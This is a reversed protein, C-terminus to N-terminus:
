EVPTSLSPSFAGFSFVGASLITTFVFLGAWSTAVRALFFWQVNRWGGVLGVGSVAGVICQTSSVPIGLFSATVVTLSAALEASAGRSPSLMTLKYGISKMVKYGYLLLGFVIAIGGYALVWKQVTANKDVIGSQYINLIASLPAITNSVDNAGHAFSNLCATFVQVYTFLSEANPDFQEGAEWLAAAKPDEHMSQSRLDQRYTADAVKNGLNHLSSNRRKPAEGNAKDDVVEPFEEPVDVSVDESDPDEVEKAVTVGREIDAKSSTAVKTGTQSHHHVKIPGLETHYEIDDGEEDSDVKEFSSQKKIIEDSLEASDLDDGEVHETNCVNPTGHPRWGSEIKRKACPGVIFIWILGCVAGTGFSTPLVWALSLKEEFNKFNATAKYFVYFLDIGIGVFLVIPFTYYARKFPDSTRMVFVTILGFIIFAIFGSLLPSALWSIFIKIAVDWQISDFGKAAISFGMISAVIDHTTSVPMGFHTAIYLMIVASLLSTFMGFMLVEPEDAYLSVDVIKSRITSTVSAGLFFAGSFEFISAIIVAQKLTISGSSVSSAFANAVDNAGILFGYAFGCIGGLVAIWLYERLDSM